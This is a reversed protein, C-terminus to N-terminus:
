PAGSPTEPGCSHKLHWILVRRARFMSAVVVPPLGDRYTLIENVVGLVKTLTARDHTAPKKSPKRPM